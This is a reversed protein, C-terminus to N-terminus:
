YNQITLSRVNINYIPVHGSIELTANDIILLGGYGERGTCIVNRNDPTVVMEWVWIWLTDGDPRVAYTDIRRELRNAAVDYVSLQPPPPPYLISGPHTYYVRRGDPTPRIYGGIDPLTDYFIVSDAAVNYVEFIFGRTAFRVFLYWFRGDISPVIRSVMGDPFNYHATDPPDVSLDVVLAYYPTTYGDGAQCFFTNGDLSFTPGDGNTTDHYVVSYDDARLVYIEEDAFALYRGDASVEAYRLWNYPLETVLSRSAIDAVAVSQNQPIYLLTGDASVRISWIFAAPIELSDIQGTLTHYVNYMNRVAGDGFYILYDRLDPELAFNVSDLARESPTTRVTTSGSFFGGAQSFVSVIQHRGEVVTGTVTYAGTSDTTGAIKAPNDLCISAGSIPAGNTADVVRGSVSFPESDPQTPKDECGFCVAVYVAAACLLARSKHIM